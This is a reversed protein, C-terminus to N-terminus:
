CPTLRCWGVPNREEAKQLNEEAVSYHRLNRKFGFNSLLKDHKLKM